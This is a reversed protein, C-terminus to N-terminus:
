DLEYLWSHSRSGEVEAKAAQGCSSPEATAQQTVQLPGSHAHAVPPAEECVHPSAAELQKPGPAKLAAEKAVHQQKQEQRQQQQQQKAKREQQLRSLL